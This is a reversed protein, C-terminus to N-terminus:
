AAGPASLKWVMRTTTEEVQVLGAREEEERCLAEYEDLHREILRRRADTRARRIVANVQHQRLQNPTSM